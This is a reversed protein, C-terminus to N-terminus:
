FKINLEKVKCLLKDLEEVSKGTEIYKQSHSKVKSDPYFYMLSGNINVINNKVDTIEIHAAVKFTRILYDIWVFKTGFKKFLNRTKKYM